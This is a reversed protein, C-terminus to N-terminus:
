KQFIQFLESECNKSLFSAKEHIKQRDIEIKKRETGM